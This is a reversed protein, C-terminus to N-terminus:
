PPRKRNAGFRPMGSNDAGPAEIHRRDSQAVVLKGGNHAGTFREPRISARAEELRNGVAQPVQGLGAIPLHKLDHALNLAHEEIRRVESIATGHRVM